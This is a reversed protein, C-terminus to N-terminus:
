THGKKTARFANSLQHSSGMELPPSGNWTTQSAPIWSNSSTIGTLNRSTLNLEWNRWTVNGNMQRWSPLSLRCQPHPDRMKLHSPKKISIIQPKRFLDKPRLARQQSKRPWGGCIAFVNNSIHLPVPFCMVFTGLFKEHEIKPYFECGKFWKLEMSYATFSCM